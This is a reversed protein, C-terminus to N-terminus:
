HKKKCHKKAISVSRHKKHKKCKKKAVSPSPPVDALTLRFAGIDATGTTVWPAVGDADNFFREVFHGSADTASGSNKLTATCALDTMYGASPNSFRIILGGGPFSFPAIATFQLEYNGTTTDGKPNLPTQTNAVITTFAGSQVDGGNATTRALDIQLQINAETNIASLDFALVDGTKLEFAPVNKYVFGAFPPWGPSGGMGLGFPYCNAGPPTSTPAITLTSASAITAQGAVLSGGAIALVALARRASTM